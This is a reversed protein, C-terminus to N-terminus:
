CAAPYDFDDIQNWIHLPWEFCTSIRSKCILVHEFAVRFLYPCFALNFNFRLRSNLENIFNTENQWTAYRRENGVHLSSINTTSSFPCVSQLSQTPLIPLTTTIKSFALNKAIYWCTNLIRPLKEFVLIQSFPHLSPLPGAERL